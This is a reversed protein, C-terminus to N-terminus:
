SCQKRCLHCKLMSKFFIVLISLIKPTVRLPITEGGAAVSRTKRPSTVIFKRTYVLISPTVGMNSFKWVYWVSGLARDFNCPFSFFSSSIFLKYLHRIKSCLDKSHSLRFTMWIESFNISDKWSFGEDRM